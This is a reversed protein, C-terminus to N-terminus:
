VSDPVVTAVSTVHYANDGTKVAWLMANAAVALEAAVVGGANTVAVNNITTATTGDGEASLEFGGSLDVILCTWGSPVLDPSPLYIRDDADNTQTVTVLNSGVLIRSAAAAAGAAPATMAQTSTFALNVGDGLSLANNVPGTTSTQQFLGKTKTVQVKPM